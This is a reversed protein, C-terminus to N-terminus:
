SVPRRDEDTPAAHEGGQAIALKGAVSSLQAEEFRCIRWDMLINAGLHRYFGIAMENWDLVTWEFRGCQHRIALDALYAIFARGIGKGRFAPTVFLDDLWLGRKGVMTAFTFFYTAYAIPHGDVFALLVRAAPVEGFLAARLSEETATVTLREFAAMSRIFSLLLPVDTITGDRLEVEMKDVVLIM